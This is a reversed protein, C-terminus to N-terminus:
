KPIKSILDDWEQDTLVNLDRQQPPPPPAKPAAQNFVEQVTQTIRNLDFRIFQPYKLLFRRLDPWIYQERLNSEWYPMLDFVKVLLLLTEVSVVGEQFVGVLKPLSTGPKCELLSKLSCGLNTLAVLDARFYHTIAETRKLWDLWINRADTTLYWDVYKAINGVAINSVFLGELERKLRFKNGLAGYMPNPDGLMETAIKGKYKFYDYKEQLFHVRIALHLNRVEEATM